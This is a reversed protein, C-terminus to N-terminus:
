RSTSPKSGAPSLAIGPPAWMCRSIHPVDIILSSWKSGVGSAALGGPAM